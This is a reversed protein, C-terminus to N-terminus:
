TLVLFGAWRDKNEAWLDLRSYMDLRCKEEEEETVPVM